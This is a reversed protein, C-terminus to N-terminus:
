AVLEAELRKREQCIKFREDELIAVPGYSYERVSGLTKIGNNISKVSTDIVFIRAVIERYNKM